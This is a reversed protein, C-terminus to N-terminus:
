LPGGAPGARARRRGHLPAKPTHPTTPTTNTHFTPRVFRKRWLLAGSSRTGSSTAPPSTPSAWSRPCAAPCASVVPPAFFFSLSVSLNVTHTNPPSPLARPSPSVSVSSPSLPSTIHPPHHPPPRTPPPAQSCRQPQWASAAVAARRGPRCGPEGSSSPSLVCRVYTGKGVGPAGLFVWHLPKGGLADCAAKLKAKEAQSHDIGGGPHAPRPLAPASRASPTCFSACSQQSAPPFQSSDRPAPRSLSEHCCRRLM